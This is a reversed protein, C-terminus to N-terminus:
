RWQLGNVLSCILRIQKFFQGNILYSARFRFQKNFLRIQGSLGTAAFVPAGRCVHSQVTELALLSANGTNRHAVFGFQLAHPKFMLQLEDLLILELLKSAVTTLSIPRYNELVNPDLGSRKLLPVVHM